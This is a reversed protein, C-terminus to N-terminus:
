SVKTLIIPLISIYYANTQEEHYSSLYERKTQFHKFEKASSVKPWAGHTLDSLLPINTQNAYTRHPFSGIKKNTRISVENLLALESNRLVTVASTKMQYTLSPQVENLVICNHM